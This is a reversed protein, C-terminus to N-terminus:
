PFNHHIQEAPTTGDNDVTTTGGARINDHVICDESNEKLWIFTDMNSARNDHIQGRISDYAIGNAGGSSGPAPNMENDNIKAGHSSNYLNIAVFGDTSEARKAILNHHIFCHLRNSLQIGRVFANIHSDRVTIWPLATSALSQVGRNVYVMVSDGIVIGESDGISIAVDFYTMHVNEIETDTCNGQLSIGTATTRTSQKGKMWVDRIVSMKADNLVICNNWYDTPITANIIELNHILAHGISTGVPTPWNVDLAIGAAAQGALLTLGSVELRTDDDTFDIDFGGNGTVFTVVSMQRGMGLLNINPAANYSVKDRCKYNGPPFYITNNQHPGAKQRSACDFARQIAPQDDHSGDGIAGFDRVDWVKLPEPRGKAVLDAYAVGATPPIGKPPIGLPAPPDAM